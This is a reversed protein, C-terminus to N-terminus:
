DMGRILDRKGRNTIESGFKFDRQESKFGRGWNTIKKDRNSIGLATGIQLREQGSKYDRFGAGIKLERIARNQLGTSKKM